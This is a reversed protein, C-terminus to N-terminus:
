ATNTDLEDLADVAHGLLKRQARRLNKSVAPKSIEFEEALDALTANRPSRFYGEKIAVELTRRETESLEQCGELLTTAATANGLLDQLTTRATSERSLVRFENNRDLAGLAGDVVGPSDFGIHWRESGAEIHFPGTVYGGHARITAMADTELIATDLRAVAGRKSRLDCRHLHPHGELADLGAALADRDAGEVLMRTELRAASPDFEWQLASFSVEHDDTTDIYPCDYQVMELTVSIM